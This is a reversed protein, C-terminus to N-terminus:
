GNGPAAPPTAAAAGNVMLNRVELTQDQPGMPTSSKTAMTVPLVIAGVNMYTFSTESTFKMGMSDATSKQAAPIMLESGERVPKWEMDETQKITMSGFPGETEIVMLRRRPLSDEDFLLAMEKVGQATAQENAFSVKVLGDEAGELKAVTDEMMSTIPRNLMAGLMQAGMQSSAGELMEPQVGQPLQLGEARTMKISPEGEKAWSVHVTGVPGIQPFEVPIDFELSALGDAVPDYLRGESEHLFNRTKDDTAAPAQVAAEVAEPAAAPADQAVPLLATALLLSTLM